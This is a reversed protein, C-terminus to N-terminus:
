VLGISVWKHRDPRSIGNSLLQVFAERVLQFNTAAPKLIFIARFRTFPVVKDGAFTPAPILAFM